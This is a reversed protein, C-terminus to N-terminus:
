LSYSRYDHGVAIAPPTIGKEHLLTGLGLGLAQVGMLNIEGPFKWRADYERFGTQKVLPLREFDATNPALAQVPTPFTM